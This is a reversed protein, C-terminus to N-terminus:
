IRFGVDWYLNILPNIFILFLSNILILILTLSNPLRNLFYTILLALFVITSGLFFQHLDGRYVAIGLLNVIFFAALPLQLLKTRLIKFAFFLLFIDWPFLFGLPISLLLNPYSGSAFLRSLNLEKVLHDLYQYSLFFKNHLIKAILSGQWNPHTGRQHDIINLNPVFFPSNPKLVLFAFILCVLVSFPFSKQRHFILQYLLLSYFLVLILLIPKLPYYFLFPFSILYLFVAIKQNTLVTYIGFFLTVILFQTLQFDPSTM